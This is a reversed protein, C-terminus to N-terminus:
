IHYFTIVDLSPSLGALWGLRAVTTFFNYKLLYCYSQARVINTTPANKKGRYLEYDFSAFM